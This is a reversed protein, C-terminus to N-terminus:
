IVGYMGCAGKLIHRTLLRHRPVFSLRREIVGCRDVVVVKVNRSSRVGCMQRMRRPVTVRPMSMPSLVRTHGRIRSIPSRPRNHVAGGGLSLQSRAARESRRSVRSIERDVMRVRGAGELSEFEGFRNPEGDEEPSNTKSRSSM